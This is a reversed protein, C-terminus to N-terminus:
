STANVLKSLAEILQAQLKGLSDRWRFAAAVKHGGGGFKAAIASVDWKPDRSRMSVRWIDTDRRILVSVQVGVIDRAKEVIFDADPSSAGTERYMEETIVVEALRGQCHLVMGKMALSELKVAALQLDGHLVQGIEHPVAGAKVLESAAAFVNASTSSYRFSGTDGSIGAYLCSAIQKDLPFGAERILEYVLESTSSAKDNWYNLDAFLPNKNHHDINLTKFKGQIQPLLGDGVRKYDGCDCIILADWKGPPLESVVDSVGPIFLSQELVGSENVVVVKKGANSLARGLGCSSGYADADPNYHSVIIVSSLSHLFIAVEKASTTM